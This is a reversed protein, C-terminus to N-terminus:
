FIISSSIFYAINSSISRLFDLIPHHNISSIWSNEIFGDALPRQIILCICSFLISVLGDFKELFEKPKANFSTHLDTPVPARIELFRLYISLKEEQSNWIDSCYWCSNLCSVFSDSSSSARLISRNIWFKYIENNQIKFHNYNPSM